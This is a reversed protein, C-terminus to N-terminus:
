RGAEEALFAEFEDQEVVSVAFNMRAHDLGCYEACHGTYEGTVKTHVRLENDQGPVVDLKRTFSPVWFSHIVDDSALRFTITQDVPLVLVPDTGQSSAGVVEVGDPYTFRWGWRFADVDVVLDEDATHDEIRADVWLSLGFIVAVLVVPVATYALELPISGKTQSAHQRRAGSVLAVVLLIIVVMAVATAMSMLVRWAFVVEEGDRTVPDPMAFNHETTAVWWTPLAVVLAGIFGYLVALAPSRRTRQAPEPADSEAEEVAPM